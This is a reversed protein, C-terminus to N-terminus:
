GIAARAPRRATLSDDDLSDQADATTEKSHWAENLPDVGPAFPEFLWKHKGSGLLTKMASEAEDDSTLASTEVAQKHEVPFKTLDSLLMQWKPQLALGPLFTRFALESGVVRGVLLGKEAPIACQKCGAAVHAPIAANLLLAADALCDRVMSWQISGTRQFMRELAHGSITVPLRKMSVHELYGPSFKVSLQRIELEWGGSDEGFVPMFASFAGRRRAIKGFVILLACQEHIVRHKRFWEDFRRYTPPAEIGTRELAILMERAAASSSRAAERVAGSALSPTVIMRARM